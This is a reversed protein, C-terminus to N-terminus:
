SASLTHRVSTVVYRILEANSNRLREPVSHLGKQNVLDTLVAVEQPHEAAFQYASKRGSTSPQAADQSTRSQTYGPSDSDDTPVTVSIM